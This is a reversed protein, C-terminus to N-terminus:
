NPTPSNTTLHTSQSILSVIRAEHAVQRLVKRRDKRPAASKKMARKTTSERLKVFQSGPGFNQSGCNPCPQLRDTNAQGCDLCVREKGQRMSELISAGLENTLPMM